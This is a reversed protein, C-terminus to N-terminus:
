LLSPAHVLSHELPAIHRTQQRRDPQQDTYHNGAAQIGSIAMEILRHTLQTGDPCRSMDQRWLDVVERQTHQKDDETQGRERGEM